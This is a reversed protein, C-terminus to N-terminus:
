WSSSTCYMRCNICCCDLIASVPKPITISSTFKTFYRKIDEVAQKRLKIQSELIHVLTARAKIYMGMLSLLYYICHVNSLFLPKM